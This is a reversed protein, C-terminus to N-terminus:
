RGRTLMVVHFKIESACVKILISIASWAVSISEPAFSMFPDAIDTVDTLISLLKGVYKIKGTTYEAEAKNKMAKCVSVTQDLRYNDELFTTISSQSVSKSSAKLRDLFVERGKQWCPSMSDQKKFSM